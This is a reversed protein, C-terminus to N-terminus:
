PRPLLHPTVRTEIALLHRELAARQKAPIDRFLLDAILEAERDALGLIHKGEKSISLLRARKDAPDVKEILLGAQIMRNLIDIGTTPEFLLNISIIDTKRITKRANITHLFYYWELEIEINQRM